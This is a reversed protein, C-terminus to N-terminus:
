VELHKQTFFHLQFFKLLGFVPLCVTLNLLVKKLVFFDVQRYELTFLLLLALFVFSLFYFINLVHVRRKYINILFTLVVLKMATVGLPQATYLDVMIGWSFSLLFGAFTNLFFLLPVLFVM